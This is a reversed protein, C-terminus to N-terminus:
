RGGKESILNQLKIASQLAEEFSCDVKEAVAIKKGLIKRVTGTSRYKEYETQTEIKM